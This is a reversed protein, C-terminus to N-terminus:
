EEYYDDENYDQYADERKSNIIVRNLSYILACICDENLKPYQSSFTGDKLLEYEATKMEKAIKPTRM